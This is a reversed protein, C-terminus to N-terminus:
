SNTPSCTFTPSGASSSGRQLACRRTHRYRKTTNYCNEQALEFTTGVIYGDAEYLHLGCDLSDPMEEEKFVFVCSDDPHHVSYQTDEIVSLGRAFYFINMTLMNDYAWKAM